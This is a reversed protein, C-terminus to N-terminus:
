TLWLKRLYGISKQKNKRELSLANKYIVPLYDNIAEYRILGSKQKVEHDKINKRIYKKNTRLTSETSKDKTKIVM